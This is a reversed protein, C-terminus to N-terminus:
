RLVNVFEETGRLCAHIGHSRFGPGHRERVRTLLEGAYRIRRECGLVVVWRYLQLFHGLPRGTHGYRPIESIFAAVKVDFLPHTFPNYRAQIRKHPLYSICISSTAWSSVAGSSRETLQSPAQQWMRGLRQRAKKGDGISTIILSFPARGASRPALM